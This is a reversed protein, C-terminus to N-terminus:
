AGYKQIARNLMPQLLLLIFAIGLLAITLLTFMLATPELGSLFGSLKNGIASALFWGGMMMGVLRKPALKTVLSLGMPSLCLEGVTIVLYYSVLWTLAVKDAGDNGMKAATAVIATAAVTILMGYLIKRATSVAKNLRVRWAFFAVVVPTLLVVFLPNLFSTVLEANFVNAFEGKGFRAASAKKYVKDFTEQTVLLVPFDGASDAKRLLLISRKPEATEPEISVSVSEVGHEDKSTKVKVQDEAFVALTLFGWKEAADKGDAKPDMARVDPNRELIEGIASESIRKAGFMAEADNGCTILTEADPRPLSPDANDFYSPMAKQTYFEQVASPVWEARRSANNETFFTMLGGNLHLVMFFAGGAVYVPMLAALGPREDPGARVILTFFYFIVPLMGTLFGFTIGGISDKVWAADKFFYWGGVGFLAAPVLITLVIQGFSADRGDVEPQRDARELKKWNILLVIVGICLGVGAGAFAVNFDFLNRLPASLLASLAAGINIGMYFINFGADRRQDGPEYLNGVMASINPKFLGNGLCLLLLGVYLQTERRVGLTFLGAAMLVGGILVSLRYGLFRDAILGGLFPTFYVFALYTGYIETALSKPLGLGGRETDTAYLVLIGLLLYFALREWMETFFLPYLGKPHGSLGGKQSDNTM